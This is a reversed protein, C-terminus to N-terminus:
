SSTQCLAVGNFRRIARIVDIPEILRMCRPVDDDYHRCDKPQIKWCGGEACCDLAGITHLIQHGPYGFWSIPERGGSVVVAPRLGQVGPPREVAAALHQLYTVGCLVGSARYMLRILDRHSTKGVMSIVGRLEPHTADSAGIQVWTIEPTQDIVSQYREVPWQKLPQDGRSGANILWYPEPVPVWERPDQAQDAPGVGTSGTGWQRPDPDFVDQGGSGHIQILFPEREAPTMYIRGGLKSPLCYPLGLANTIGALWAHTMHQPHENTKKITFYGDHDCDLDMNIRVADPDNDAIPSVFPNNLFLERHWPAVRVDTKFRGPYKLHLDRLVGTMVTIDGACFGNHLIVKERLDPKDDKSSVFRQCGACDNITTSEFIECGRVHKKRCAEGKTDIVPLMHRCDEVNRNEQILGLSTRPKPGLEILTRRLSPPLKGKTPPGNTWESECAHCICDPSAPGPLEGIPPLTLTDLIRCKMWGVGREVRNPCSM